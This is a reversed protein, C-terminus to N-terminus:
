NVPPQRLPPTNSRHGDNGTLQVRIRVKGGRSSGSSDFPFCRHALVAQAPYALFSWGPLVLVTRGIDAFSAVMAVDPHISGSCPLFALGLRSGVRPIVEHGAVHQRKVVLRFQSVVLCAVVFCQQVPEGTWLEARWRCEQLILALQAEVNGELRMIGLALAVEDLVQPAQFARHGCRVPLRDRGVELVIRAEGDVALCRCLEVPQEIAPLALTM